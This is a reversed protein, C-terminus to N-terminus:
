MFVCMCMICISGGREKLDDLNTIIDCQLVAIKQNEPKVTFLNTNKNQLGNNSRKLQLSILFSIILLSPVASEGIFHSRWMKLDCM